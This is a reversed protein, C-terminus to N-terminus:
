TTDFVCQLFLSATNICSQNVPSWSRITTYYQVYLGSSLIMILFAQLASSASVTLIHPYVSSTVQYPLLFLISLSFICVLFQQLDISLMAKNAEDRRTHYVHREMWQRPLKIASEWGNFLRGCHMLQHGSSANYNVEDLNIKEGGIQESVSLVTLVLLLHDWLSFLIM